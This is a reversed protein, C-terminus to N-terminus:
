NGNTNNKKDEIKKRVYKYGYYAGVIVTPVFVIFLVNRIVRKADM